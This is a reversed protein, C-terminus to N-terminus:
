AGMQIINEPKEGTIIAQLKREWQSLALRKEKMYQYRDYVATVASDGALGKHNLVKGLVTRETGLKAMNTAATRRLDHIRFDDVGSLERVNEVIQRIDKVHRGPYYFSEFVWQSEGTLPRLGELIDMALQNLPIIHLRDKKTDKAPIEWVDGKINEWKMRSTEGYRQGTLLLFKLLSNGPEVQDSIAAWLAKIEEDSYVRERSQEKGVPKVTKVVNFDTLGKNVAFSLMSSFIARVRNANVDQEDEFVMKELFESLHRRQLDNLRYNGFEPVIISNIRHTYDTQTSAKLRSVHQTIFKEALEAVTPIQQEIRNIQKEYNPDKGKRIEVKLEDVKDRAETLSIGPYEGITYRQYKGNHRYRYSFSKKGTKTVRFVLGSKKEDWYEIRSKGKTKANDVFKYNLKKKPM